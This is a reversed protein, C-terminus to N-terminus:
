LIQEALLQLAEPSAGAILMSGVHRRAGAAKWAGLRDVIRERSGVLSVEDVLQDPVAAMAEAKKGDLYLDQIKKAADPWGQRTIHDNYFNKDRAGMGGVYLAVMPRFMNRCM